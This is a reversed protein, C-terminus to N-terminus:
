LGSWHSRHMLVRLGPDYLGLCWAPIGVKAKYGKADENSWKLAVHILDGKEASQITIVADNTEDLTFYLTSTFAM